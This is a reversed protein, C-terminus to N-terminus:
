HVKFQLVHPKRIYRNPNFLEKDFTRETSAEKIFELKRPEIPEIYKYTKTLPDFIQYPKFLTQAVAKPLQAPEQPQRVERPLERGPKLLIARGLKRRWEPAQVVYTHKVPKPKAGTEIVQTAVPSGEPTPLMEEIPINSQYISSTAEEELQPVEEEYEEEMEVPMKKITKELMKRIENLKDLRPTSQGTTLQSLGQEENQRRQLEQEFIMVATSSQDFWPKWEKMKIKYENEKAKDRDSVRGKGKKRHIFRDMKNYEDIQKKFQQIKNQLEDDQLQQM